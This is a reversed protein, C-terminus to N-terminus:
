GRWAGEALDRLLKEELAKAEPSFPNLRQVSEQITQPTMPAPLSSVSPPAGRGLTPSPTQSPQAFGQPEGLGKREKVENWAAKMPNKLRFYAPDSNLEETLAQYLQPDRVRPDKEILSALNQRLTTDRQNETWHAAAELAPAAIDRAEKQAVLRAIEISYAIEDQAKLQLLWQRYAQENNAQAPQPASIPQPPPTERELQKAQQGLETLKREGAKYEALMEEISKEKREIAGQLAQTSAKLKEEDVTGDPRQFKEPVPVVPQPQQVPQPAVPPQGQPVPAPITVPDDLNDMTKGAFLERMQKEEDASPMAVDAVASKFPGGVGKLEAASKMEGVQLDQM